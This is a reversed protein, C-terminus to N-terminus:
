IFPFVCGSWHTATYTSCPKVPHVVGDSVGLVLSLTAPENATVDTQYDALRQVDTEIL